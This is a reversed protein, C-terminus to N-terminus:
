PSSRFVQVLTEALGGFDTEPIWRSASIGAFGLFLLGSFKHLWHVPMKQLLASGLWAGLASTTILALTGGVWVPVASEAVSLGAVTLQTKDGFEAAFIMLFATLVIGHGSLVRGSGDDEMEERALLARLGFFLFMLTVGADVLPKPLWQALVFGFVVALLNLVAFALGAGLVVPLPRYRGALTMCVIQSKDGIEAAAILGFASSSVTGWHLLEASPQAKQLLGPWDLNLLCSL